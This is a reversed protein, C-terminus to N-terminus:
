GTSQVSAGTPSVALVWGRSAVGAQSFGEQLAGVLRGADGFAILAPGAGSLAVAAAGAARAAAAAQEAGAILKFRFPQHLRDDMVLALLELNGTRLAEVVLPVRGLNFVADALPVQRPLVARAVKTPLNVDPVVVAVELPPAAIRVPLFGVEQTAVVVLGGLLAAAANDPHGEMEAAMDLVQRRTFPAGLLANAGVMGALIATASSGLGGGLPIANRCEIRLGPLPQGSQQFIQAAARWILNTEDIAIEAQGEGSITFHVGAPALTLDVENWLDLALALCDFGPGLNATSAPVRVRVSQNM